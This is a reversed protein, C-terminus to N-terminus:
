TPLWGKKGGLPRFKDKRRGAKKKQPVSAEKIERNLAAEQEPHAKMKVYAREKAEECLKQLNQLREVIKKDEESLRSSKGDVREGTTKEILNILEKQDRGLADVARKVGELQKFVDIFSVNPRLRKGECELAFRVLDELRSVVEPISAGEPMSQLAPMGKKAFSAESNQKVQKVM